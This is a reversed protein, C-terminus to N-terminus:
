AVLRELTAALASRILQHNNLLYDVEARNVQVMGENAKKALQNANAGLKALHYNISQLVALTQDNGASRKRKPPEAAGWCALVAERMYKTQAKGAAKAEAKLRLLEVDSFPVQRRRCLRDAKLVKKQTGRAPMLQLAEGVNLPSCRKLGFASHALKQCGNIPTLLM